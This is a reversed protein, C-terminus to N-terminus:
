RADRMQTVLDQAHIGQTGKAGMRVEVAAKMEAAGGRELGMAMSLAGAESQRERVKDMLNGFAGADGHGYAESMGRIDAALASMAATNACGENLSGYQALGALAESAERYDAKTLAGSKWAGELAESAENHAFAARSEMGAAPDRAAVVAEKTERAAGALGPMDASAREASERGGSSWAQVSAALAAAAEAASPGGEPGDLSARFAGGDICERDLAQKVAMRAEDLGELAQGPLSSETGAEQVVEEGPATASLSTGATKDMPVLKEWTLADGSRMISKGADTVGAFADADGRDFAEEMEGLRDGFADLCAARMCGDDLNQYGSAYKEMVNKTAAYSEDGIAGKAHAADLRDEALDLSKKVQFFLEGAPDGSRAAADRKELASDLLGEEMRANEARVRTLGYELDGFPGAERGPASEMVDAAADLEQSTEPAPLSEAVAGAALSYAEALAPLSAYAELAGPGGDKGGAEKFESGAKEAADAFFDLAGKAACAEGMTGYSALGDLRASLEAYQGGSIGGNEFAGLLGDQARGLSGRVESAIFAGPAPAPSAAEMLSLAAERIGDAAAMGERVMGLIGAAGEKLTGAADAMGELPEDGDRPQGGQTLEAAAHAAAKADEAAKRSAEWIKGGASDPMMLRRGAPETGANHTGTYIEAPRRRGADRRAGSM